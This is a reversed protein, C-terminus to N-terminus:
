EEVGDELKGEIDMIKLEARMHMAGIIEELTVEWEEGVDGEKDSNDKVQIPVM